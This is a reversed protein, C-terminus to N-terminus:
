LESLLSCLVLCIPALLLVIWALSGETKDPLVMKMNMRKNLETIPERRTFRHHIKPICPISRSSASSCSQLASSTIWMSKVGTPSPFDVTNRIGNTIKLHPFNPKPSPHRAKVPVPPEDLEPVPTLISYNPLKNKCLVSGAKKDTEEIRINDTMLMMETQLAKLEELLFLKEIEPETSLDEDSLSDVAHMTNGGDSWSEALEQLRKTVRERKKPSETLSDDSYQDSEESSIVHNDGTRFLSPSLIVPFNSCPRNIKFATVSPNTPYVVSSMDVFGSSSGLDGHLTSDSDSEVIRIRRSTSGDGLFGDEGTSASNDRNTTLLSENSSAPGLPAHKGSVQSRNTFMCTRNWAATVLM